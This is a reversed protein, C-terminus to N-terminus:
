SPKHARHCAKCNGAKKLADVSGEKKAIVGAMATVLADTKKNFDEQTGKEVQHTELALLWGLLKKAEKKSASGEKVKTLISKVGKEKDDKFGVKMIEEMKEHTLGKKEGKKHHDANLSPFSIVAAAVLFAFIKIKM